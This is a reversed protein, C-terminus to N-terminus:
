DGGDNYKSIVILCTIFIGLLTGLFIGAFFIVFNNM